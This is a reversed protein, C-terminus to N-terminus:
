SPVAITFAFPFRGLVRAARPEASPDDLVVEVRVGGSAADIGARVAAPTGAEALAQTLADEIERRRLEPKFIKGVPTLPLADVIRVAKPRAPPDAIVGDVFAALEGATASLGPRLEVYAVPLEGTHADPRGVAAALRVAPHRHLPGEIGAPDINHGGRIILDKARGTLWYYGDADCHGLDGTNLWRRGDGLDLWAGAADGPRLYGAFVNPGSIALVGSEGSACDRVYGGAADVVVVKMEQGPLRLGISGPRREGRPPNLSSICVAETLGYGELIRLGTLREFATLVDVPMPAAGCLGFELCGVDQGEIPVDLLAAFLTPVGSFFNVRYHAVIDWFRAVVGPGRYGQATALVVHAGTSFPLLGTVTVANVHFLPLGCLLTKGPGIGDGLVRSASWVNAVEQGHRRVAIKPAGTTGGTCFYSSEDEAGITRGGVLRDGPERAIAGGFDHVRVTDPAGAVHDMGSASGVLVLHRVGPALSLVTEMKAWLEAAASPALTVLVSAGAAKLIDATAQASLMPNVACVIGAAEGGWIVLHTEPLNPLVYAIVSRPGVGLRHFMNATRHIDCLLDAYTWRRARGPAGSDEFFTLAPAAPTAEAQRRILAYTSAPLDDPLGLAEIALVDAHTAVGTM